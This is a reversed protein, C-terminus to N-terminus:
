RQAEDIARARSSRNIQKVNEPDKEYRERGQKQQCSRCVSQYYGMDQDRWNFESEEKWKGCRICRRIDM